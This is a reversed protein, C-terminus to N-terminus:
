KDRRYEALAADLAEKSSFAMPKSSDEKETQGTLKEYFSKPRNRGRQGDKTKFWVLLSLYDAAAALLLTEATQKQGTLKMKTRSSERLGLFLTAVYSVPLAQYDYISYYEAFDCIMEDEAEAM